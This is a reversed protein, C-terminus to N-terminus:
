GHSVNQIFILLFFSQTIIHFCTKQCTKNLMRKPTNATSLLFFLFAFCPQTFQFLLHVSGFFFGSILQWCVTTCHYICVVHYDQQLHSAPHWTLFIVALPLTNQYAPDTGNYIPQTIVYAWIEASSSQIVHHNKALENWVVSQNAKSSYM